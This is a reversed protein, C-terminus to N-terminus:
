IFRCISGSSLGSVVCGVWVPQSIDMLGYVFQRNPHISSGTWWTPFPETGVRVRVQLAPRSGNSVSAKLALEDRLEIPKWQSNVPEPTCDCSRQHGATLRLWQFYNIDDQVWRSQDYGINDNAPHHGTGPIIITKMAPSASQACIPRHYWEAAMLPEISYHFPWHKTRRLLSAEIDRKLPRIRFQQSWPTGPPFFPSFSM